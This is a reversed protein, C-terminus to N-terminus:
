SDCNESDIEVSLDPSRASTSIAFYIGLIVVVFSIWELITLKESFVFRAQISSLFPDLLLVVAVLSSSLVKLIHTLIGHGIVFTLAICIIALWGSISSPFIRDGSLLLIPILLFICFLCRWFLINSASLHLRLQEVILLYAGFLIASLLALGDGKLQITSIHLDGIGIAISGGLAIAMGILFQRDFSRNLFAWAFLTTFLPTLSHILSSTGVKTQTLSWAWLIQNSTACIGAGLLLLFIKGSYVKVTLPRDSTKRSQFFDWGSGIGFVVAAFLFRCLVTATPSIEQESWKVGVPTFSIVLCAILLSFLALFYTPPLTSESVESREIM